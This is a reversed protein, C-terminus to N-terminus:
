DKKNCIKLVKKLEHIKNYNSNINMVYGFLIALILVFSYIYYISFAINM